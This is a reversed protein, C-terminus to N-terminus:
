PSSCIKLWKTFRRNARKSKELSTKCSSSWCLGNNAYWYRGWSLHCIVLTIFDPSRKKVCITSSPRPPVQSHRACTTIDVSHCSYFSSVSYSYIPMNRSCNLARLQLLPNKRNSCQEIVSKYSLLTCLCSIKIRFCSEYLVFQNIDQTTM